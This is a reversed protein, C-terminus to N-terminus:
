LAKGVLVGFLFSLLLLAALRIQAYWWYFRYLWARM